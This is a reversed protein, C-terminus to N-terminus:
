VLLDTDVRTFLRTNMDVTGVLVHLYPVLEPVREQITKLALEALSIAKEKALYREIGVEDRYFASAMLIVGDKEPILKKKLNDLLIGAAKEIPVTIDYSWPGVLLARNPIHLWDFGRGVGLIQERHDIDIIARKQKRLEVIHHINGLILPMLDEMMRTKMDPYLDRLKGRLDNHTTKTEKSLDLTKSNNGHFILVDEDTEIGVEIPYVTTHNKGFVSEFQLRLRHAADHAADTDYNFGKCGRHMDGKSFHYTTLVVCDRGKSISYEIWEKIIVGFFPWGLDFKGGINRFPQIIGPPTETMLALNLRGDMCKLAAIETSHIERYQRRSLFQDPSSFSESQKKNYNLIEDVLDSKPRTFINAPRAALSKRSKTKTITKKM